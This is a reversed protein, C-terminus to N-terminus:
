ESLMVDVEAASAYPKGDVERTATLKVFRASQMRAFRITMTKRGRSFAGSAVPDGWSRGDASVHVAYSAIRGNTMDQRPVYRIGAIRQPSKLDLTLSHPMPVPTPEWHTHWITTPDGDIANAAPHDPHASDARITAGLQELPSPERFLSRIAEISARSRPAFRDGAVYELLSRRLQRAAPRNDLDAELDASCVLLRGRGVTAEVVLGLRRPRFWDPVVQVIPRLAPPLADLVMPTSRRILSWWQWDSHYDTPFAALAPHEPDCLIGLTHPAQGGTWATNWFISSFGIKVDSAVRNPSTLLVVVGGNQLRTTASENLTSVVLVGEPVETDVRKPYVWFDWDNVHERDGHALRVELVLKTPAALEALPLEIRGLRTLTGVPVTVRSLAGHTVVTTGRSVTWRPTLGNLAAPGFHAVEIEAEFTEDRTWSRKTMRALPTTPGCFRRVEEPSVYPKSDWFPDLMGILATGQGPFDHLDLLQFGGFGPTRLASEIEEKYCLAQLKGSAMLFDRAQDGMHATALLEHFVEFNRPKLAGTYKRMEDFNPYVCWQGIEHSIVPVEQRGVFDRYDASTAPPLANIRSRLGQGWQQIRPAPAVHFENEPIAPWGAGSTVLQRDTRAKFYKVWPGLYKGGRQPGGPETGMAFLLFSPHNGYAKLVREGERYLWQDIPRGVGLATSQNPWTSCEVQYYFGLKDAAVFAAEPPCWSHFRIHNLGHAKCVRIIREWSAVDTPPYGTLPFICCELTGRLFLPRGNLVFRTGRTGIHRIGFSVRKTADGSEDSELTVVLQCLRPDFEDWRVAERDFPVTCEVNAGGTAVTITRSRSGLTRGDQLIRLTVTEQKEGGTANALRLVVDASRADAAPAVEAHEISVPSEARLEVAGTIGHWASQTHDSVSHSNVGVDLAALSNDVRITLEHRGPTLHKSLDYVHPTSLSDNTGVNRGAVWVQTHWHPRELTLLVRRGRWSAPIEVTRRYYAPGIYRREPQLWFPMKFRAPDQYKAYEPRQLLEPRLNGIWRTDPGVPDGIGSDRLAGPIRVPKFGDKKAASQAGPRYEGTPDLRVTWDGALDIRTQSGAISVLPLVSLALAFLARRCDSMMPSGAAHVRRIPPDRDPAHHSSRDFSPVAGLSALPPAIM